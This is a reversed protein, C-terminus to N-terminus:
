SGNNLRTWSQGGNTSKYIGGGETGAFVTGDNAYNPSIAISFIGATPIGSLTWSQGRNTSKYIGGRYTGAFLLMMQLTLPSSWLNAMAVMAETAQGNM